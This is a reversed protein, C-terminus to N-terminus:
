LHLRSGLLLLHLVLVGADACHKHALEIIIFSLSRPARVCWDGSEWAASCGNCVLSLAMSARWKPEFGCVFVYGNHGQALIAVSMVHLCQM